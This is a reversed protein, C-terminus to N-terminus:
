KGKRRNINRLATEAEDTQETRPSNFFAITTKGLYKETEDETPIGAAKFLEAIHQNRLSAAKSREEKTKKSQDEM